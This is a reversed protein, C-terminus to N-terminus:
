EIQKGKKVNIEVTLCEFMNEVIDYKIHQMNFSDTYGGPIFLTLIWTILINSLEPYCADSGSPCRINYYSLQLKLTNM